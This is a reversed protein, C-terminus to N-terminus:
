SGSAPASCPRRRVVGTLVLVLIPDSARLMSGIVYVAAVAMLGGLSPSAEIGVVGSRSIFASCPASHARGLLRGSYRAVGASQPFTGPIRNGAVALSGRGVMVAAMQGRASRACWYSSTRSRRCLGVVAPGSLHAALVDILETLSVPYRGVTFATILGAALIALAVGLGPLASRTM